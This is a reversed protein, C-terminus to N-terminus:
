ASVLSDPRQGVIAPFVRKTHLFVHSLTPACTLDVAGAPVAAGVGARFISHTSGDGRGQHGFPRTAIDGIPPFACSVDAPVKTPSRSPQRPRARDSRLM